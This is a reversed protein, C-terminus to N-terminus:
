LTKILEEKSEFLRKEEVWEQTKPYEYEWNIAYLYRKEGVNDMSSRDHICVGKIKVKDVRSSRLIFAEDNINFKQEKM